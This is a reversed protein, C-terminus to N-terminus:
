PTAPEAGCEPCRAPTARLDYGCARCTGPMIRTRRRRVVGVAAVLAAAVVLPWQPFIWIRANGDRRVDFRVLAVRVNVGYPVVDPRRSWHLRMTPGQAAPEEVIVFQGGISHVSAERGPWASSVSDRVVYSRVWLAAVGLALLLLLASLTNLLHRIM